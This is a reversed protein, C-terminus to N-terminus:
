DFNVNFRTSQRDCPLKDHLRPTSSKAKFHCHCSPLQSDQSAKCLESSNDSILYPATVVNCPAFSRTLCPLPFPKSYSVSIASNAPTFIRFMSSFSVTYHPKFAWRQSLSVLSTAFGVTEPKSIEGSKLAPWTQLSFNQDISM